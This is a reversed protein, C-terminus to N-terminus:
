FAVKGGKDASILAKAGLRAASLAAKAFLEKDEDSLGNWTKIMWSPPASIVSYIGEIFKRPAESVAGLIDGKIDFGFM